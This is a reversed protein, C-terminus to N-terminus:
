RNWPAEWPWVPLWRGSKSHETDVDLKLQYMCGCACRWVAGDGADLDPQQCWHDTQRGRKLLEGNPENESWGHERLWRRDQESLAATPDNRSPDIM